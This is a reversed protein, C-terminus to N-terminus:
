SGGETYRECVILLRHSGVGRPTCTFLTLLDRGPQILIKAIENPEIVEIHCVRYELTEWLNQLFVSDGVELQDADRLYPAGNWGRHGAVVCNTNIGGIPMSTQSLQAFGMAMHEYTCGLYLPMEVNITPISIIGIAEGAIGYASLDIIEAQYSWADVLGSQGADYIQQNYDEMADLLDPYEVPEAPKSDALSELPVKPNSSDPWLDRFADVAQAVQGAQHRGTIRPFLIMGLGALMLLILFVIIVTRQRDKM